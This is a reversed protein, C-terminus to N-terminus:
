CGSRPAAQARAPTAALLDCGVFAIGALAGAGLQLFERRTTM